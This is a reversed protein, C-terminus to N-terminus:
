LRIPTHRVEYNAKCSGGGNFFIQGLINITTMADKIYPTLDRINFTASIYMDGLLKIKYPNKGVKQVVKYTGDGRTM